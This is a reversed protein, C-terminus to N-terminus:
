SQRPIKKVANDYARAMGTAFGGHGKGTQAVGRHQYAAVHIMHAVKGAIGGDAAQGLAV